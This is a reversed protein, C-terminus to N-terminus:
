LLFSNPFLDSLTYIKYTEITNGLIIETKPAFFEAMVQRCSGCPFCQELLEDKEESFPGGVIAIKDFIKEGQSIATFIATREACNTLGFSSNEINCGGYIRGSRTYVAAGVAFNSYPVYARKRYELAIEILNQDLNKM